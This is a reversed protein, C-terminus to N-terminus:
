LDRYYKPDMNRLRYYCIIFSLSLLLYYFTNGIDHLLFFVKQALPVKWYTKEAMTTLNIFLISHFFFTAACIFFHPDTSYNYYKERMKQYFYTFSLVIICINYVRFSDTHFLKWGKTLCLEWLSYGMCAFWAMVILLRLTEKKYILFFIVFWSTIDVLSFANYAVNTFWPDKKQVWPVLWAENLVTLFLLFSLLQQLRAQILSFSYLSILFTALELAFVYYNM